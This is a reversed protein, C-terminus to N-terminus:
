VTERGATAICEDLETGTGNELLDWNKKASRRGCLPSGPDRRPFRLPCYQICISAQRDWEPADPVRVGVVIKPGRARTHTPSDFEDHNM